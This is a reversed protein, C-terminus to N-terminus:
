CFALWRIRHENLRTHLPPLALPTEALFANHGLSQLQAHQVPQRHPEYWGGMLLGLRSDRSIPHLWDPALLVSEKSVLALCQYYVCDAHSHANA